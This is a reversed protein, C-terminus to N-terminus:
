KADTSKTIGDIDKIDIRRQIKTKKINYIALNTILFIREQKWHKRNFKTVMGSFYVIEKPDLQDIIYSNQKIMLSDYGVLEKIEEM